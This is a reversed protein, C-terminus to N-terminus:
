LRKARPKAPLQYGVVETAGRPGEEGRRCTIVRCIERGEDNGGRGERMENWGGDAGRVDNQQAEASAQAM